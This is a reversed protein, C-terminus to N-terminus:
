AAEGRRRREFREIAAKVREAEGLTINHAWMLRRTANTCRCGHGRDVRGCTTCLLRQDAPFPIPPATM